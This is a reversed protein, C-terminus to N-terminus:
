WGRSVSENLRRSCYHLCHTAEKGAHEYVMISHQDMSIEPKLISPLWEFQMDRATRVLYRTQSLNTGQLSFVNELCCMDEVDLFYLRSSNCKDTM